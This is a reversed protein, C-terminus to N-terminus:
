VKDSNNGGGASSSSSSSSPNFLPKQESLQACSSYKNYDCKYCCDPTVPPTDQSSNSSHFSPPAKKIKILRSSSCARRCVCQRFLVVGLVLSLGLVMGILVACYPEMGRSHLEPSTGEESSLRRLDDAVCLALCIPCCQNKALVPRDCELPPCKAVSFCQISGGDSCVCSQCAGVKWTEGHGYSKLSDDSLCNSNLSSNTTVTNQHPCSPCCKTPPTTLTPLPCPTPPCDPAACLVQGHHCTCHLCGLGWSEGELRETGDSSQCVSISFNVHGVQEDPCRPCCDGSFFIPHECNPPQCTILTCMEVGNKCICRRCKDTWEEGEFRPLGDSVHCQKKEPSLLLNKESSTGRRDGEDEGGAGQGQETTTLDQRCKCVSCQQENVWFGFPCHLDCGAMDTCGSTPQLKSLSCKCTPCGMRDLSFGNPCDLRHCDLFPCSNDKDGGGNVLDCRPCCEGPVHVPNDCTSHCMAAHCQVRGEKCTCSTCPDEEWSDSNNYVGGSATTCGVVCVPCCSNPPTRALPCGPPVDCKIPKCSIVGNHCFCESCDERNSWTEGSSYDRRNYKCGQHFEDVEVPSPTCQFKPCCRGPERTSNQVLKPGSGPPCYPASCHLGPICQCKELSQEPCCRKEASLGDEQTGEPHAHHQLHHHDVLSPLRYSDAPCPPSVPPCQVKACDDYAKKKNTCSTNARQNSDKKAINSSKVKPPHTASTISILTSEQDSTLM